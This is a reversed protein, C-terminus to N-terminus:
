PTTKGMARRKATPRSVASCAVDLASRATDSPIHYTEDLFPFFARLRDIEGRVRRSKKAVEDDSDGTLAVVARLYEDSLLEETAKIVNTLHYVFYYTDHNQAHRSFRQDFAAELERLSAASPRGKHAKAETLVRNATERLKRDQIVIRGIERRIAVIQNRLPNMVGMTRWLKRSMWHPTSTKEGEPAVFDGDARLIAEVVKGNEDEVRFILSGNEGPIVMLAPTVNRFIVMGDRSVTGRLRDTKENKM